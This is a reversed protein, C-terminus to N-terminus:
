PPPGQTQLPLVSLADVLYPEYMRRLHETGVAADTVGPRSRRLSNVQSMAMRSGWTIRAQRADRFWQLANDIDPNRHLCRSLVLADEMALSGGESFTPAIAHAADGILICRGTGWVPTRVSMASGFHIPGSKAAMMSEMESSPPLLEVDPAQNRGIRSDPVRDSMTQVFCHIQDNGMPIFGFSLDHSETASWVDSPLGLVNRACFRWYVLGLSKAESDPYLWGRSQSNVGDAGVVLDYEGSTGDSLRVLVSEDRLEFQTMRCGLRLRVLGERKSLAARTLVRHLEPRPIGVTPQSAGAWVQRLDIAAEHSARNIEISRITAGRNAVEADLGIHALAAMGNPHLVIGAGLPQPTTSSDIIDISGEGDFAAAFFWGAIGAGSVLVKM